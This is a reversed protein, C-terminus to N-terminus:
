VWPAAPATAAGERPVPGASFESASRSEPQPRRASAAGAYSAPAYGWSPAASPGSRGGGARNLLWGAAFGAAISGAFMAWPHREVQLRLDFTEKVTEVSSNVTDKVTQVTEAVAERAGDVTEIIKNELTELKHGLAARQAEMQHRIVEPEPEDAM